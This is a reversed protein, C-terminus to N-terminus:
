TSGAACVRGHRWATEAKRRDGTVACSAGGEGARLVCLWELAHRNDRGRYRQALYISPWRIRVERRSGQSGRDPGQVEERDLEGANAPACGTDSGGDDDGDSGVPGWSTAPIREGLHAVAIAYQRVSEPLGGDKAAQLHWAIKRRLHQCNAIPHEAGILERHVAQLQPASMKPLDAIQPLGDRKRM